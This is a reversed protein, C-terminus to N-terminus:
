AASHPIQLLILSVCYLFLSIAVGALFNYLLRRNDKTPVFVSKLTNTLEFLRHSVFVYIATTLMFNLMPYGPIIALLWKPQGNPVNSRLWIHFQSIYTELTIKGLWAFLTLSSNRLKQTFNRLCIYVTIPIWSTYPHYKNYTVKDLKYICEYWFYGVFVAIAVIGAKISLKRKPESEELKEMWKEINPHCYAYIMGIIWIYRDLGSRFHWEHLRPLDPKAPDTYGLVFTLPSWLIEFVGPIEWILIVVLFCALIKAIMVSTIENYKNCIGVAGYVMVTFLTHMPCIYYLMYDNNLVICSFAVFFNLRWMMQAFRALSFDKRIYYYSFNGFGTMWVYAAIFVRIANYIETAAFYHYMLFLVQMWGKWEETQHRNLYLTAKGSFVSKDSHKKLSTMASVIILLMFLFLFLDRNYDKTSDGLINTRDCIYFYFMLLGFEAMARLTGRNELLFSDDMTLFRIMNTKISSSHFRASASRALGGELLVARDDEKITEKGLEVLNTDSHVKSHSTSKKYELFESYIWAVFIPIIGLLFSVLGPTITTGSDAMKPDASLSSSSSSALSFLRSPSHDRQRWYVEEVHLLQDLDREVAHFKQWDVNEGLGYVLALETKKRKVDAQLRRKNALNWRQLALACSSLKSTLKDMNSGGVHGTWANDVLALCDDRDAWCLEYFFRRKGIGRVVPESLRLPPCLDAAVLPDTQGPILEEGAGLIARDGQFGASSDKVVSAQSGALVVSQGAVEAPVGVSKGALSTTVEVNDVLIPSHGQVGEGDSQSCNGDVPKDKRSGGGGVLTKRVAGQNLSGGKSFFQSVGRHQGPVGTARM